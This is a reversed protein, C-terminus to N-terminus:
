RMRAAERDGDTQRKETQAQIIDAISNQACRGGMTAQVPKPQNRSLDIQSDNADVTTPHSRHTKQINGDCVPFLFFPPKSSSCSIVQLTDKQVWESQRGSAIQPTARRTTYQAQFHVLCNPRVLTRDSKSVLICCAFSDGLTERRQKHLDLTERKAFRM